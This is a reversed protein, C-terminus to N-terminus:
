LGHFILQIPLFNFMCPFICFHPRAPQLTWLPWLTTLTSATSSALWFSSLHYHSHEIDFHFNPFDLIQNILLDLTHSHSSTASTSSFLCYSILLTLSHSALPNSFFVVSSINFGGTMTVLGSASLPGHTQHWLKQHVFSLPWTISTVIVFFSLLDYLVFPM